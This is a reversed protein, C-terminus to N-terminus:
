GWVELRHLVMPLEWCTPQLNAGGPQLCPRMDLPPNVCSHSVSVIGADNGAQLHQQKWLHFDVGAVSLVGTALLYYHPSKPCWLCLLLQNQQNVAKIHLPLSARHHDTQILPAGLGAPTNFSVWRDGLAQVSNLDMDFYHRRNARRPDKLAHFLTLALWNSSTSWHWRACSVRLRIGLTGM